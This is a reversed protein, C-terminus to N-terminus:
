LMPKCLMSVRESSNQSLVYVTVKEVIAIVELFNALMLGYDSEGESHTCQGAKEGKTTTTVTIYNGIEEKEFKRDDACKRQVM